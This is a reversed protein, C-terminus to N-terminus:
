SSHINWNVGLILFLQFGEMEFPSHIHSLIWLGKFLMILWFSWMPSFIHPGRSAPTGTLEGSRLGLLSLDVHRSTAHWSPVWHLDTLGPQLHSRPLLLLGPQTACDVASCLLYQRPGVRWPGVSLSSCMCIRLLSALLLPNSDLCFWVLIKAWGRM